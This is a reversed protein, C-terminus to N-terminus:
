KKVEVAIKGIGRELLAEVVGAVTRPKIKADAVVTATIEKELKAVGVSMRTVGREKASDLIKKVEVYPTDAPLRLEITLSPGAEPKPDTQDGAYASRGIGGPLLAVGLLAPLLIRVM